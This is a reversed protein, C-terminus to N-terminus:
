RSGAEHCPCDCDKALGPVATPDACDCYECLGEVSAIVENVLRWAQDNLRPKDKSHAMGAARLALIARLMAPANAILRAMDAVGQAGRSITQFVECISRNSADTVFAGRATWKEGVFEEVKVAM